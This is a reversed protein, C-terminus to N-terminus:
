LEDKYTGKKEKEEKLRVAELIEEETPMDYAKAEGTGEAADTSTSKTKKSKKTKSTKPKKTKSTKSTSVKPPEPGKMGKMVVEMGAQSMENAKKSRFLM